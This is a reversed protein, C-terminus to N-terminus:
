PLQKGHLETVKEKNQYRRVIEVIENHKLTAYSFVLSFLYSGGKIGSPFRYFNLKENFFHNTNNTSPKQAKSVM